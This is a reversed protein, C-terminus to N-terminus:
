VNGALVCRRCQTHHWGPSPPPETGVKCDTRVCLSPVLEMSMAQATGPHSEGM